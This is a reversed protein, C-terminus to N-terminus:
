DINLYKFEGDYIFKLVISKEAVDGDDNFTHKGTVGIWNKIKRIEPAVKVPDVSNAQKMAEILINVADYGLAAWTDPDINYKKIFAQNFDVVEKRGSYPNYMTIIYIDQLLQKDLTLLNLSDLGDGGIIPKIYGATRVKSIFVLGADILGAFFIADFDYIKWKDLIYEFESENGLGFSFRDVIKMDLDMAKKEFSNALGLGYTNNSYCIVFKKYEKEKCFLAAQTGILNDTPVNRFIYGYGKETLEPTTSGPSFMILESTEYTLAVALSVYSNCHGIVAMIEPDECFIEAIQLGVNVDAEDDKIVLEIQKGLIGGTNNINDIALEVGKDIIDQYLNLPWVLGIKIHDSKGKAFRSRKGSINTGNTCATFLFISLLILVTFKLVKNKDNM